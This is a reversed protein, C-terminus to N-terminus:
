DYIDKLLKQLHSRGRNIRSKVTGIPMGIIEAIEEYALDQIDRLIVAERFVEPIQMLAHEIRLRKFSGDTRQDPLAESDPLPIEFEEKDSSQQIIHVSRRKYPKRLESKALNGAITYIWTSFKAITKYLHKKHYVRIFTDQLVDSADDYNGLFRYIFNLLPGKFRAVLIDFAPMVDQQFLLILEEDTKQGLEEKTYGFSSHRGQVFTQEVPEQSLNM